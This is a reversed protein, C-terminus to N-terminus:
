AQEALRMQWARANARLREEDIGILQGQDLKMQGEIWVHSVHNRSAAYVVHSAPHYVPALALDTFDIACLDALKGVEISGIRHDLGLAKAAGLTAMHLATHAPVSNARTSQAKALLAALRM